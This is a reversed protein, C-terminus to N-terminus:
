KKAPEFRSIMSHELAWELAATRAAETEKSAYGGVFTQYFREPTFGQWDVPNKAGRYYAVQIDDGPGLQAILDEYSKPKRKFARRVYRGGDRMRTSVEIDHRKKSFTVRDGAQKPVIVKKGVSRIQGTKAKKDRYRKATETDATVVASNGKIVDAFKRLLSKAYKTKKRADKPKYLGRERLKKLADNEAQSFKPKKTAM